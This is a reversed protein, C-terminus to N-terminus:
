TKQHGLEKFLPAAYLSQLPTKSDGKMCISNINIPQRLNEMKKRSKTILKM